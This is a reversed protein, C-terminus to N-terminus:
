DKDEVVIKVHKPSEGKVWRQGTCQGAHLKCVIYDRRPNKQAATYPIHVRGNNSKHFELHLLNSTAHPDAPRTNEGEEVSSSVLQEIAIKVFRLNKTKKVPKCYLNKFYDAIDTKFALFQFHVSV